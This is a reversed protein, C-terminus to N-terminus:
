EWVKEWVIRRCKYVRAKDINAMCYECYNKVISETVIETPEFHLKAAEFWVDLYYDHIEIKFM